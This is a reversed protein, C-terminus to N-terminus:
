RSCNLVSKGFTIDEKVDKKYYTAFTCQTSWGAAAMITELPIGKRFAAPTSAAQTSHPKFNVTDIGAQLM